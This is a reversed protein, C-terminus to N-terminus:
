RNFHINSFAIVLFAHHLICYMGTGATWYAASLESFVWVSSIFASAILALTFIKKPHSMPLDDAVGYTMSAPQAPRIARSNKM